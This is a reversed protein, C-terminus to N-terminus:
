IVVPAAPCAGALMAHDSAGCQACRGASSGAAGPRAFTAVSSLKTGATRSAGFLAAAITATLATRRTLRLPQRDTTSNV